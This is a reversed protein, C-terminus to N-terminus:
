GVAAGDDVLRRAALLGVGGVFLAIVFAAAIGVRQENARAGAAVAAGGVGAGTAIALMEVVRLSGSTTGEGGQPARALVLLSVSAYALGMGAAAVSWGVGALWLPLAPVLSATATLGGGVLLLALGGLVRVRRRGGRTITDLRAQLWAGATWAVAAITLIIGAQGVGIGRASTLALPVFAEVTFYTFNLLGNVALGAPLGARVTLTGAPLLRRLSWWLLGLGVAALPLALALSPRDLGVLLVTTGLALAVALPLRNGGATASPAAPLRRLAPLILLTAVAPLPLLGLFVLRWSLREAVIGAVAPGVLGPVVWASSLSALMNARASDPYARSISVYAMATIAGAGGGQLGRGALFVAMDPALGAVVLGVAFLAAGLLFPPAPGRRDAMQGAAITFVLSALMFASFAWGYRSVGGIEQVAVPLVTAVALSEFAVTSVVLLLGITLARRSRALSGTPAEGSADREPLADATRTLDM